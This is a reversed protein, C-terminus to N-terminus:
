QKLAELLADGEDPLEVLRAFLEERERPGLSEFLTVLREQTLVSPLAVRASVYDVAYVQRATMPTTAEWTITVADSM